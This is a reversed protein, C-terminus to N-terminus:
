AGVDMMEPIYGEKLSRELKRIEDISTANAISQRVRDAEEKSM